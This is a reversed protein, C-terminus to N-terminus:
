PQARKPAYRSVEVERWASTLTRGFVDLTFREAFRQRGARSMRELLTPDSALRIIADAISSPENPPVLIGSVQDEVIELAGGHGTAIPV